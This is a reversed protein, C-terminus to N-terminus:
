PAPVVTLVDVLSELSKRDRTSNGDDSSTWTLIWYNDGNAGAADFSFHPKVTALGRRCIWDVNSQGHNLYPGKEDRKIVKTFGELTQGSARILVKSPDDSDVVSAVFVRASGSMDPATFTFSGDANKDSKWGAPGRVEVKKGAATAETILVGKEPAMSVPAPSSWVVKHYTGPTLDAKSLKRGPDEASPLHGDTTHLTQLVGRWVTDAKDFNDPSVTLRFILKRPTASYMLGTETILDLGKDKSEIKTMLMPVALVEEDWQRLITRKLDQNVDRQITQWQDQDQNFTVAFIELTAREDVGPLPVLFRTTIDQKAPRWTKPDTLVMRTQDNKVKVKSPKWIKPYDFALGLEENTYTATAPAPAAQTQAAQAPKATGNAPLSNPTQAPNQLGIALLLFATINM